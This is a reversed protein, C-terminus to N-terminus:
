AKSEGIIEAIISLSLWADDGQYELDPVHAALASVIDVADWLSIGGAVGNLSRGSPIHTVSFKEADSTDGGSTVHLAWNGMVLARAETNFVRGGTTGMALYVRKSLLTPNAPALRARRGKRAM